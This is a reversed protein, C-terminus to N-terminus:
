YFSKFYKGGNFPSVNSFFCNFLPMADLSLADISSESASYDILNNQQAILMHNCSMVIFLLFKTILNKM